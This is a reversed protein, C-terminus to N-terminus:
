FMIATDNSHSLRSFLQFTQGWLAVNVTVSVDKDAVKGTLGSLLPSPLLRSKRCLLPVLVTIAAMATRRPQLIVVCM